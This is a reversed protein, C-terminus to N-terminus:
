KPMNDLALDIEHARQRRQQREEILYREDVIKIRDLSPHFENRGLRIVFWCWDKVGVQSIERRWKDLLARWRRIM